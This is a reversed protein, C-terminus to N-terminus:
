KRKRVTMIEDDFFMKFFNKMLWLIIAFYIGGSVWGIPTRAFANFYIDFGFSFTIAGMFVAMIMLLQKLDRFHGEKIKLFLNTKKLSENHYNKIQKL